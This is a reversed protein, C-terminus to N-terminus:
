NYMKTFLKSKSYFQIFSFNRINLVFKKVIEVKPLVLDWLVAQVELLVRVVQGVLHVLLVLEILPLKINLELIELKM